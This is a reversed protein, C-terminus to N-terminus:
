TWRSDLPAPLRVKMNIHMGLNRCKSFGAFSLELRDGDRNPELEVHQASERCSRARWGDCGIHVEVEIRDTNTGEIELEGIPFDIYLEDLNAASFNRAYERAQGSPTPAATPTAVAAILFLSLLSAQM